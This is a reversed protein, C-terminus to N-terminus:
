AAGPSGVIVQGNFNVVCNATPLNTTISYEESDSDRVVAVVGNSMYVYNYFDVASWTSGATTTLKFVLAGDVWEYIKTSSCVIVSNVFVFIQPYPFVDTIVTTALRTLKDISVLIGDKVIAGKSTILHDKGRIGRPSSRLGVALKTSDIEYSFRGPV